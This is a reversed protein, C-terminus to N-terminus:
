FLIIMFHTIKCLNFYFIVKAGLGRLMDVFLAGADEGDETRVDVFITCKDLIDLSGPM